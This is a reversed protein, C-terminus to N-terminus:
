WLSPLNIAKPSPQRFPQASTFATTETEVVEDGGPLGLNVPFATRFIELFKNGM